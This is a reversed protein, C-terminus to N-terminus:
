LNWILVLLWFEFCPPRSLKPNQYKFKYNIQSKYNTIQLKLTKLKHKQNKIKLKQMINSKDNDDKM